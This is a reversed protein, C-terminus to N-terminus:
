RDAEMGYRRLKTHLLQRHIGLRRAAETRNGHTEALARAIMARELRTIATELDGDLWDPAAAPAPATLFDLDGRGIVSARVLATARQM